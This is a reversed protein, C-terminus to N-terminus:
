WIYRTILAQQKFVFSSLGM